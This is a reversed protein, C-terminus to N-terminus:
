LVGLIMKAVNAGWVTLTEIRDEDIFIYNRQRLIKWTSTSIDAPFPEEGQEALYLRALAEKQADTLKGKGIMRKRPM